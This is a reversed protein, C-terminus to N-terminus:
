AKPLHGELNDLTGGWGEKMSERGGDFAKTEADSANVPIWRVTVETKGGVDKFEVTSLIELPWNADWPNRAVKADKDAFSLVFVLRQEPVIERYVFRGWFVLGDPSRLGYHMTGGPRLDVKVDLIDFGKPGWWQKLQSEETWARWVSAVPAKVTRSIIFEKIDALRLDTAAGMTM